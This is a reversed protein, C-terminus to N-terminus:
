RIGRAAPIEREPVPVRRPLVAVLRRAIAGLEDNDAGAAEAAVLDALYGEVRTGDVPQAPTPSWQPGSLSTTPTYTVPDAPMNLYYRGTLKGDRTATHTM